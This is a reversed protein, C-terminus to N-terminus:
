KPWYNRGSRACAIYVYVYKRRGLFVYTHMLRCPILVRTHSCVWPAKSLRSVDVVHQRPGIHVRTICIELCKKYQIERESAWIPWNILIIALKIIWQTNNTIFYACPRKISDIHLLFTRRAFLPFYFHVQIQAFIARGSIVRFISKAIRRMACCWLKKIDDITLTSYVNV